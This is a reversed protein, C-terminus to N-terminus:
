SPNEYKVYNYRKLLIPNIFKERYGKLYNIAPRKTLDKLGFASYAFQDEQLNLLKNKIYKPHEQPKIKFTHKCYRNKIMEFWAYYAEEDSGGGRDGYNKFYRNWARAFRARDKAIIEKTRFSSEYQFIPINVNPVKKPNILNNNLTALTLDGGGNLKINPFKKKNFAICIRTKIHYRDPTFIQYQPFSIAPYDSFRVLSNRLKDKDKEHFFYDLDMRIVWDKTSKDFGEQFVKGIHDWEFEEPWNEGVVIVEDAFDEYCSLSESWPDKREEPKTMSTFISLSTM